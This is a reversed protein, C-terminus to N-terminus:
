LGIFVNPSSGSVQSLCPFATSGDGFPDGFRGAPVGGIFVTKSTAFLKRAHGTPAERGAATGITCWYAPTNLITKCKDGVSETIYQTPTPHPTLIDQDVIPVKGNITVRAAVAKAVGLPLQAIAPWSATPENQPLPVKNIRPDLTFHPCGPVMGGGHGPMFKAGNGYGHGSCTGMFLAANGLSPFPM